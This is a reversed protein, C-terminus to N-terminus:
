YFLSSTESSWPQHGAGEHQSMGVKLLLKEPDFSRKQGGGVSPICMICMCAHLLVSM